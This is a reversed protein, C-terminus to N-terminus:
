KGICFRAFIRDLVDEVGVRGILSELFFCTRRLDEAVIELPAGDDLASRLAVEASCIASRQRENAVILSGEVSMTQKAYGELSKILMDLNRGTKASIEVELEGAKVPAPALIADQSGSGELRMDLERDGDVKTLVRWLTRSALERPPFRYPEGVPNLWLVLDAAASKKLARQVGEQELPDDSERIGATDVLNVPFGGLDLKVEILDRTTGARESVIAVDRRTIANLLTSKGANPPGAILVTMGERIREVHSSEATLSALHRLIEECKRRVKARSAHPADLEDSFDLECEIMVLSDLLDSRWREVQQQLHGRAQEIALRRQQETEAEVLDSLAEIAVLDLKGNELARRAFEGPTALRLGPMGSLIKLLLSVVPRSGHVQFEGSDEGTFSNPGPFWLVLGSDIARRDDPDIIQRVSAQRPRPLPGVLAKIAQASEPGSVRIVAIAAKGLGSALAFITRRDELGYAM